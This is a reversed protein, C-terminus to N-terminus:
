NGAAMGAIGIPGTTVARGSGIVSFIQLKGHEEVMSQRDVHAQCISNMRLGAFLKVISHVAMPEHACDCKAMTYGGFGSPLGMVSNAAMLTSAAKANSPEVMVISLLCAFLTLTLVM